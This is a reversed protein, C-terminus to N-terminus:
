PQEESALEFVAAAMARAEALTMWRRHAVCVRDEVRVAIYYESVTVGGRQGGPLIAYQTLEAPV